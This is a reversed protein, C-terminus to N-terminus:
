DNQGVTKLDKIVTSIDSLWSALQDVIMSIQQYSIGGNLYHVRAAAEDRSSCEKDIEFSGDICTYGVIYDEETAKFYHYM